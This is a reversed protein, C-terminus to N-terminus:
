RGEAKALCIAAKADAPERASASRIAHVLGPARIRRLITLLGASTTLANASAAIQATETVLEMEGRCERILDNLTEHLATIGSQHRV